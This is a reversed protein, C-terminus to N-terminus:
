VIKRLSAGLAALRNHLLMGAARQAVRYSKMRQSNQDRTGVALLLRRESRPLAGDFEFTTAEGDDRFSISLPKGCAAALGYALRAPEFLEDSEAIVGENVYRAIFYRIHFPSLKQRCLALSGPTKLEKPPMPIWRPSYALGHRKEVDFYQVNGSINTPKLEGFSMSLMRKPLSVSTERELGLWSDLAQFPLPSTESYRVARAYGLRQVSPFHRLLEATTLSSILLCGSPFPVLRNPTPRWYGDGLHEAERLLTLVQLAYKLRTSIGVKAFASSLRQIHVERAIQEDVYALSCLSGRAFEIPDISMVGAAESM